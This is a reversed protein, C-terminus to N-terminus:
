SKRLGLLYKQRGTLEGERKFKKKEEKEVQPKSKFTNFEGELSELKTKLNNNEELLAEIGKAITSIPSELASMKEDLMANVDEKSVQEQTEESMEENGAEIIETIMGAEDVIISTGAMDGGLEHTGAPAPAQTGDEGVIFVATGVALEGEYSLITEGDALMVEAFETSTEETSDTTNGDENFVKDKLTQVLEEFKEFVSKKM